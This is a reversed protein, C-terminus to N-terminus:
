RSRDVVHIRVARHLRQKTHLDNITTLGSLVLADGYEELHVPTQKKRKVEEPFDFAELMEGTGVSLSQSTSTGIDVGGGRVDGGGGGGVGVGGSGSDSGSGGVSTAHAHSHAATASKAAGATKAAAKAQRDARDQGVGFM